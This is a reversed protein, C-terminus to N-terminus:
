KNNEIRLKLISTHSYAKQRLGVSFFSTSLIIQLLTRPVLFVLMKTNILELVMM